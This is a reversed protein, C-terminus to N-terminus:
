NQSLVVKREKRRRKKRKERRTEKLGRRLVTKVAAVVMDVSEGEM